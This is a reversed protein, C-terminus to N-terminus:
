NLACLFGELVHFMVSPLFGVVAHGFVSLLSQRHHVEKSAPQATLLTHRLSTHLKLQCIVTSGYFKLVDEHRCSKSLRSQRKSLKPHRTGRRPRPAIKMWGGVM